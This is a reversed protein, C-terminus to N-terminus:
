EYAKRRLVEDIQEFTQDPLGNNDIVVSCHRQYEEESLQSEFIQDVKTDSYGRSEKLRIRRNERSTDIYWLEDCIEDYHEEILLAAELVLLKREGRAAEM